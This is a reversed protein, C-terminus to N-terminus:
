RYFWAGQNAAAFDFTIQNTGVLGAITPYVSFGFGGVYVFGPPSAPQDRLVGITGEGQGPNYFTRRWPEGNMLDLFALAVGVNNTGDPGSTSFILPPQMAVGYSSLLANVDVATAWKWGTMDYGNLTQNLCVGGPCVANIDSWSLNTFLDVQAWVKGNRTVTNNGTILQCVQSINLPCPDAGDLLGDNDDDADLHDQTGDGDTDLGVFTFLPMAYFIQDSAIINAIAANGATGVNTIVCTPNVSDPCLFGPGAAWKSFVFGPRAVATFSDSFTSDTINFECLSGGMCNRTGSSSTVDGGSSVLLDVKCGAVLTSVVLITLIKYLRSTM